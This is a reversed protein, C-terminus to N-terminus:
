RDGLENSLQARHGYIEEPMKDRPAMLEKPLIPSTAYPKSDKTKVCADMYSYYEITEFSSKVTRGKLIDIAFVDPEAQTVIDAM